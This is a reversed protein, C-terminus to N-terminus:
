YQRYRLLSSELTLMLQHNKVKLQGRDVFVSWSVHVIIMEKIKEFSRSSCSLSNSQIFITKNKDSNGKM